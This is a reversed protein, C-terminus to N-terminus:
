ETSIKKNFFENFLKIDWYNYIKIANTDNDSILKYSSKNDHMEEKKEINFNKLFKDVETSYNSFDLVSHFKSLNKLAINYIREDVIEDILGSYYQCYLNRVESNTKLFNILGRSSTIDDLSLYMQYHSYVRDIPNRLITVYKYKGPTCNLSIPNHLGNKKFVYFPLKYKKIYIRFNISGTKPVAIFCYEEKDFIYDNQQYYHYYNIGRKGINTLFLKDIIKGIKPSIKKYLFKDIFKKM